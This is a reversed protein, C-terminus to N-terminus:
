PLESFNGGAGRQPPVPPHHLTSFLDHVCWHAPFSVTPAAASPMLTVLLLGLWARRRNAPRASM